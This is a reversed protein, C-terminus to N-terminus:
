LKEKKSDFRLYKTLKLEPRSLPYKMGDAVLIIPNEISEEPLEVLTAEHKKLKNKAHLLDDNLKNWYADYSYDYTKREAVILKDGGIKWNIRNEIKSKEILYETLRSKITATFQEIIRLKVYERVIEVDEKQMLEEFYEMLILEHAANTRKLKFFNGLLTILRNM